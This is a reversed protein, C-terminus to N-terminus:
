STEWHMVLSHPPTKTPLSGVFETVALEHCHVLPDIGVMGFHPTSLKAAILPLQLDARLSRENPLFNGCSVGRNHVKEHGGTIGPLVAPLFVRGFNPISSSYFRHLQQSRNTVLWEETLIIPHIQRHILDGLHSPRDDNRLFM